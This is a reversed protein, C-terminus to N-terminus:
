FSNLKQFYEKPSIKEYGASGLIKGNSDLAVVYPFHGHPNYNEALQDNKAQQEDSLKNKKRKPFDVKVMVFTDKALDQFVKSQWIEQDLKICPACWDSGQFVLIIKKDNAAATAKASDIDTVWDQAQLTCSALLLIILLIRMTKKKYPNLFM